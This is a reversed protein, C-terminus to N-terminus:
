KLYRIISNMTALLFIFLRQAQPNERLKLLVVALLLYIIATLLLGSDMNAHAIPMSIIPPILAFLFNLSILLLLVRWEKGLTEGVLFAGFVVIIILYWKTLNVFANMEGPAKSLDSKKKLWNGMSTYAEDPSKATSLYSRFYLPFRYVHSMFVFLPDIRAIRFVEDRLIREYEAGLFIIEGKEPLIGAVLKRASEDHNYKPENLQVFSAPIGDHFAAVGFEYGRPHASLGAFACHWIVHEGVATLYIPPLVIRMHVQLAVFGGFFVLLPWFCINRLAQLKGLKNRLILVFPVAILFLFESQVVTRAYYCFVLVFTQVLAGVFTYPSLKREGMMLLSLYLAPVLTVLLIYRQNTLNEYILVPSRVIVLFGCSILLLLFLLIPRNYFTMVFVVIPILLLSSFLFFVSEMRYGFLAFAVEYYDALGISFGLGFHTGSSAVEKDQLALDIAANIALIPAGKDGEDFGPWFREYVKNYGRHGDLGFKLKSIAISIAQFNGYWSPAKSNSDSPLHEKLACLLVLFIMSVLIVKKMKVKKNESFECYIKSFCSMIQAYYGMTVIVGTSFLLYILVSLFIGSDVNAHDLPYTILPPILAFLFNLGILCFCFLGQKLLAEHVLFAGFLVLVLMHFQTLNNPADVLQETHDSPMLVYLDSINPAKSDALSWYSKLYTPIKYFYSSIVFWPNERLIRIFENKLAEEYEPGMLAIEGERPAMGHVLRQVALDSDWLVGKEKLRNKVQKIALVDSFLEIGYLEGAMPHAALGLYLPHWLSHEGLATSYVPDLASRKYLQLSVIGCIVLLLPWLCVAKFIPLKVMLNRAMLVIPLAMLFMFQYQTSSRAFYCFLLFFTQALAGLLLRPTFRPEDAILLALYFVPVISPIVLYRQNVWGEFVVITSRSFVLFSCMLLFLMFLLVPRDRFTMVFLLVPVIMLLAFFYFTSEIRYGFLSFAMKHFDVLGTSVGLLCHKESLNVNKVLLAAQIAKNIESTPSQRDGKDLHPYFLDYIDKYGHYGEHLGFKSESIAISIAQLNGFFSPSWKNLDSPAHDAIVSLLVALSMIILFANKLKFVFSHEAKDASIDKENM